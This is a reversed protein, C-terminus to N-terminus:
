CCWSRSSAVLSGVAPAVGTGGGGGGGVDVLEWTVQVVM